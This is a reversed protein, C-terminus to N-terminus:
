FMPFHVYIRIHRINILSSSLSISYIHSKDYGKSMQQVFTVSVYVAPVGSRGHSIEAVFTQEMMRLIHLHSKSATALTRCTLM